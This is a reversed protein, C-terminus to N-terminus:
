SLLPLDSWGSILGLRELPTLQTVLQDQLAKDEHAYCYFLKTAQM